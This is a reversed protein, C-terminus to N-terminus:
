DILSSYASAFLAQRDALGNIGGNIRRTLTVFDRQDAYTNLKHLKWYLAASLAAWIPRELEAPVSEFDPVEPLGKTETAGEALAAKMRQTTIHYNVRGTIQILGRGMYLKGDGARFNGLSKALPTGYEYRLQQQTPGWIERTYRLRGSEHGVQALFCALRNQDEDVDCLRTAALLHPAWLQATALKCGYTKVLVIETLM